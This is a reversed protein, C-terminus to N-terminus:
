SEQRSLTPLIFWLALFLALGFGTALAATLDSFLFDTVLLIAGSMALGLSALGALAVRNGRRVLPDKQQQRFTVRHYATPAILLATSITTLLLTV